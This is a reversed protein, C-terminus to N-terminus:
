LERAQQTHLTRDFARMHFSGTTPTFSRRRDEEDDESDTSKRLAVKKGSDWPNLGLQVLSDKGCLRSNCDVAHTVM